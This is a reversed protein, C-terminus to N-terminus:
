EPHPSGRAPGSPPPAPSPTLPEASPLPQTQRVGPAEGRGPTPRAGPPHERGEERREQWRLFPSCESLLQRPRCYPTWGGLQSKPHFGCVSGGELSRGGARQIARGLLQGSAKRPHGPNVVQGEAPPSSPPEPEPTQSSPSGPAQPAAWNSGRTPPTLAPGCPDSRPPHSGRGGRASHPTPEPPPLSVRESFRGSTPWARPRAPSSPSAPCRASVQRVSVRGQACAPEGRVRGMHTGGRWVSGSGARETVPTLLHYLFSFCPHCGGGRARSWGLGPLKAVPLGAAQGRVGSLSGLSCAAPCEAAVQRSGAAPPSGPCLTPSHPARERGRSAAGWM